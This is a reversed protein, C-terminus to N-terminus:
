VQDLRLPAKNPKLHKKKEDRLPIRRDTAELYLVESGRNGTKPTRYLYCWM